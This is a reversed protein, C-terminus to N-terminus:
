LPLLSLMALNLQGYARWALGRDLASLGAYMCPPRVFTNQVSGLILTQENISTNPSM